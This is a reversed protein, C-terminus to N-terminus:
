PRVGPPTGSVSRWGGAEPWHARLLGSAPDRDIVPATETAAEFQVSPTPGVVTWARTAGRLYLLMDGEGVWEPYLSDPPATWSEGHWEEQEFRATRVRYVRGDYRSWAVAAGEATVLLRPTIDPVQNDPSIRGGTWSGDVQRLRWVLEDDNGDFASWVLLWSGDALVAADLATQSGPGAGVLRVAPEFQNDSYTSLWVEQARPRAGELWALGRLPEPGGAALWRVSAILMSGRPREPPELVSAQPGRGGYLRLRPGSRSGVVGALAWEQSGDPDRDLLALDDFRVPADPGKTAPLQVAREPGLWLTPPGAGAQLHAWDGGRYATLGEAAVGPSSAASWALFLLTLSFPRRM